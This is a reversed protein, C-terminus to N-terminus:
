VAAMAFIVAGGGHISVGQFCITDVGLAITARPRLAFFNTGLL